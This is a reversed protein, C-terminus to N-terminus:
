GRELITRGEARQTVKTASAEVEHEAKTAGRTSGRRACEEVLMDIFPPPFEDGMPLAAPITPLTLWMYTKNHRTSDERTIRPECGEYMHATTLRKRWSHDIDGAKSHEQLQLRYVYGQQHLCYCDLGAFPRQALM